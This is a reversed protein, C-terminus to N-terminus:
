REWGIRGAPARRTPMGLRERLENVDVDLGRALALVTDDSPRARHGSELRSIYSLDLGARRALEGMSMNQRSRYDAIVDGIPEGPDGPDDPRDNLQGM